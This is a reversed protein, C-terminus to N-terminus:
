LTISPPAKNQSPFGRLLDAIPISQPLCTFEVQPAMSMLQDTAFSFCASALNSKLICQHCDTYGSADHGGNHFPVSVLLILLCLGLGLINGARTM